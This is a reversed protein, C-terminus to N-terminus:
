GYRARVSLALQGTGLPALAVPQGFRVASDWRVVEGDQRVEALSREGYRLSLVLRLEERWSAGEAVFALTEGDWAVDGFSWTDRAEWFGLWQDFSWVPLGHREAQRLLEQGPERSFRVWNSPHICVAYPTHFRASAECLVRRAQDAFAAPSLKYSYDADGFMMDDTLHTHQQFVELPRGDPRCFRMPMAAGFAGYPSPDRARRYAGSFYNGDLRVGLRQMVEVPELYGAWATCHNRLSRPEVGFMERFMRIQREFEALREPIPRGDLQRLNPHPGVDHHRRYRRVDERTSQTHTPIVYLNMRAGVSALYNLEEDNWAPEAGDEDGSYLLIGPALGPLHSLMPLPAPMNGAVLDVFFRALLDAFPMWGAEHAGLECALHSPRSCNDGSPIFEARAPDGQRLMLVCLPLDFAFAVIKGSGLPTEAVGVSEGEHCDPRCLYGLPRAPPFAHWTEVSGVVPLPEGAVGAAACGTIRLRLPGEKDAERQVGAAAALEGDPLFCVLVGGRRVYEILCEAWRRWGAGAPCVVVPADAPDLAAAAQAPVIERLRFGWTDLMEGVYASLDPPESLVLARM